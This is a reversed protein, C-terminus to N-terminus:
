LRVNEGEERGRGFLLCYRFSQHPQLFPYVAAQLVHLFFGLVQGALNPLLAGKNLAKVLVKDGKM